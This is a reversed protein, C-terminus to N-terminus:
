ESLAECVGGSGSECGSGTLTLAAAEFTSGASSRNGSCNSSSVMTSGPHCGGGCETSVINRDAPPSSETSVNRATSSVPVIRQSAWRGMLQEPNVRVESSSCRYATSASISE